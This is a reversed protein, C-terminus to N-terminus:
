GDSDGCALRGEMLVGRTNDGLITAELEVVTDEGDSVSGIGTALFVVQNLVRPTRGPSLIAEDSESDFGSRTDTTDLHLRGVRLGVSRM